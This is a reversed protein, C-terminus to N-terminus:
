GQWSQHQPHLGLTGRHLIALALGGRSRVNLELAVRPVQRKHAERRLVWVERIYTSKQQLVHITSLSCSSLLDAGRQDVLRTEGLSDGASTDNLIFFPAQGKARM